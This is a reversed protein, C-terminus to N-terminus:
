DKDSNGYGYGYGYGYHGYGYGYGYGYRGYGYGWSKPDIGNLALAMNKLKKEKYLLEVEPLSRRDFREARMVFITLDAIRNAISADAIIGVPVNDVIVYEYRSRLEAILEDLREDMLLEAPNPAIPGCAIVDPTKEPEGVHIIDDLTVTDDAL